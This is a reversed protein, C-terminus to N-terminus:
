SGHAFLRGDPTAAISPHDIWNAFWDAGQAITVPPQWAEGDLRSFKLVHGGAALPETWALYTRGDGGAALAYSASNAGAPSALVRVAAPQAVPLAALLLVLVGTM